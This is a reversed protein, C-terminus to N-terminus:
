REQATIWKKPRAPRAAALVGLAEEASRTRQILDRSAPKLLGTGAMRDLQSVLPAWFGDVDLLVVPKSHLGLQSWTAAEALEELTGLGGPLAIFADSLDYMLQKREHMSAVEHLETLGTHGVERAFLGAPIVGTVRGGHGLAADALEGMLGVSGGGYVLDVGRRALLTGLARAADRYRPDAPASSGCFVCVARLAVM